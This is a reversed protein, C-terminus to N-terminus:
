RVLTISGTAKLQGAQVVYLYRGSACSSGSDSDGNWQIEVRNNHLQGGTISKVLAGRIDYIELRAAEANVSGGSNLDLMVTTRPNCPNPYARSGALTAASAREAVFEVLLTDLGFVHTPLVLDHNEISNSATALSGGFLFRFDEALIERARDAHHASPGNDQHNLGRLKMYTNWRASDGDLFAWTLVHGMEHTTIYAITSADVVGIGPALYISNKSAYSSSVLTSPTPLIYVNIELDTQFGWMSDLAHVVEQEDFPYYTRDAAALEVDVLNSNKAIEEASFVNATIGNAFSIQRSALANDSASLIFVSVLALLMLNKSNGKHTMMTGKRGKHSILRIM